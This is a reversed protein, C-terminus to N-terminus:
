INLLGTSDLVRSYLPRCPAPRHLALLRAVRAPRASGRDLAAVCFTIIASSHALCSLPDISSFSDGIEGDLVVFVIAKFMKEFGSVLFVRHLGVRDLEYVSCVYWLCAPRLPM